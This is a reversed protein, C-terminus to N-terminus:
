GPTDQISYRMRISEDQNEVCFSTCLKDPSRRFLEAPTSSGARPLLSSSDGQPSRYARFLNNIFTSKGTGSEGVVIIRLYLNQWARRVRPNQRRALDVDQELQSLERVVRVPEIEVRGNIAAGRQPEGGSAGQDAWGVNRGADRAAGPRGAEDRYRNVGIVKPEQDYKESGVGNDVEAPVQNDTSTSNQGDDGPTRGNTAYGGFHERLQSSSHPDTPLFPGNEDAAAGPDSGSPEKQEDENIVRRARVDNREINEDDCSQHRPDRDLSLGKKNAKAAEPDMTPKGGLVPKKVKEEAGGLVMLEAKAAAAEREQEPLSFNTAKEMLRAIELEKDTPNETRYKQLQGTTPRRPVDEAAGLKGGAYGAKTAATLTTETQDQQPPPMMPPRPATRQPSSPPPLPTVSSSASRGGLVGGVRRSKEGAHLERSKGDASYSSTFNSEEKGDDAKPPILPTGTSSTSTTTEEADSGKTTSKQDHNDAAAASCPKRSEGNTKESKDDEKPGETTSDENLHLEQHHDDVDDDDSDDHATEIM